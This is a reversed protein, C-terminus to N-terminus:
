LHPKKSTDLTGAPELMVVGAVQMVGEDVENPAFPDVTRGALFPLPLLPCSAAALVLRRQLGFHELAANRAAVRLAIRRMHRSGLERHGIQGVVDEAQCVLLLSCRRSLHAQFRCLPGFLLFMVSFRGISCEFLTM